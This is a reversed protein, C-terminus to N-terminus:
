HMHRRRPGTMVVLLLGLAPLVIYVGSILLLWLEWQM